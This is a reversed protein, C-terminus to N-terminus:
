AAATELFHNRYESLTFPQASLRNTAFDFAEDLSDYLQDLDSPTRVFPTHGAELSPSHLTLNFVANEDHAMVQMLRKLDAARSLEPSLV